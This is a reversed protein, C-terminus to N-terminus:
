KEEDHDGLSLSSGAIYCDEYSPARHREGVVAARWGRWRVALWAAGFVISACAFAGPNELLTRYASVGGFDPDTQFM